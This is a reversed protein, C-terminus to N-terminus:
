SIKKDRWTGFYVDMHHAFGHCNSRREEESDKSDLAPLLISLSTNPDNEATKRSPRAKKAEMESELSSSSSDSGSGEAEGSSVEVIEGNSDAQQSDGDEPEGESGSGEGGKGEEGGSNGGAQSETNAASGSKSGSAQVSGKQTM